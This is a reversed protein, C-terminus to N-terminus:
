GLRVLQGGFTGIGFWNLGIWVGLDWNRSIWRLITREDLIQEGWQDRERLNGV